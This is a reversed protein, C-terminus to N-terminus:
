MTFVITVFHHHVKDTDKNIIVTALLKCHMVCRFTGHGKHAHGMHLEIPGIFEM